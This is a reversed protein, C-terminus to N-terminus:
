KSLEKLAEQVRPDELAKEADKMTEDLSKQLTKDLNMGIRMPNKGKAEKLELECTYIVDNMRFCWKQGWIHDKLNIKEFPKEALADAANEAELFGVINKGDQSKAKTVDYMKRVFAEYEEQSIELGDKKAFAAVAHFGPVQEGYFYNLESDKDAVDFFDPAVDSLSLGYKDQLVSEFKEVKSMDEFDKKAKEVVENVKENDTVAAPNKGGQCSGLLFLGALCVCSIVIKKKM